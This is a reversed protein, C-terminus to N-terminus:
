AGETREQAPSLAFPQGPQPLLWVSARTPQMTEGVVDLLTRTLTDLDTEDRATTGFRALVQQVDYKQRFFRRDIARQIRQRLPVFLGAILLTSAVIALPSRAGTLRGFVAQLVVVSSFYVLTLLVTLLAYVLTRRIIVDIDWLRYKLIAFAFAVAMFGLGLLIVAITVLRAALLTTLPLSTLPLLLTPVATLVASTFGVVVGYIVWKTQQRQAPTSIVRYRYVQVIVAISLWVLAWVIGLAQIPTEWVTSSIFRLDPWFLSAIVYGLWVVALWRTWRPVFHGDPFVLFAIVLSALGVAHVVIVPLNWIPYLHVLATTLPSIIMGLTVLALAFLLSMWDRAARWFIVVGVLWFCWAIIEELVTVVLGYVSPTMGLAALAAADVPRLQGTVVAASPSVTTLQWVRPLLSALLVLASLAAVVVWLGRGWRLYRDNM